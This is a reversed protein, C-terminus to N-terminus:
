TASGTTAPPQGKRFGQKKWYSWPMLEDGHSHDELWVEFWEPEAALWMVDDVTLLDAGPLPALQMGPVPTFPFDLIVAEVFGAGIACEIRFRVNM